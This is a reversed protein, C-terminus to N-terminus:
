LRETGSLIRLSELVHFCNNSDTQSNIFNNVEGLKETFDSNVTDNRANSYDQYKNLTNPGPRNIGDNRKTVTHYYYRDQVNRGPDPLLLIM